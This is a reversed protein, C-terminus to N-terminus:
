SKMVLLCVAEEWTIEKLKFSYRKWAYITHEDCWSFVENLENDIFFHTAPRYCIVKINPIFGCQHCTFKHNLNM